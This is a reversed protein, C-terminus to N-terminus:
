LETKLFWNFIETGSRQKFNYWVYFSIRLDEELRDREFERAEEEHKEKYDDTFVKILDMIKDVVEESNIQKM